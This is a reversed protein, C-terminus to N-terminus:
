IELNNRFFKLRITWVWTIIVVYVVDWYLLLRRFVTFKKSRIIPNGNGLALEATKLLYPLYNPFDQICLNQLNRLERQKLYQLIRRNPWKRVAYGLLKTASDRDNKSFFILIISILKSLAIREPHNIISNIQTRDDEALARYIRVGPLEPFYFQFNESENFEDQLFKKVADAVVVLMDWRSMENHDITPMYIKAVVNDIPQWLESSRRIISGPISARQILLCPVYPNAATKSLIETFEKNQFQFLRHLPASDGLILYNPQFDSGSLLRSVIWALGGGFSYGYFVTPKPIINKRIGEAIQKAALWWREKDRMTYKSNGIIFDACWIDFEEFWKSQILPYSPAWGGIGPMILVVGKSATLSPWLEKFKIKNFEVEMSNASFQGQGLLETLRNFTSNQRFEHIPLKKNFVREIDMALVMLSLSDGGLSLFDGSKKYAGIFLVSDWLRALQALEINDLEGYSRDEIVVDDSLANLRLYDVKGGQLLPLEQLIQIRKPVMYEPLKDLLLSRILTSHLLSNNITVFGYLVVAGDEFKDIVASNSIGPIDRLYNEVENLFVKNGRVKVMRELRGLHLLEGGPQIQVIDGTRYLMKDSCGEHALFRSSDIGNISYDGLAHYKSKIVLEGIADIGGVEVDQSCIAFENNPYINGIPATAHQVHLDNVYASWIFLASETSGYVNQILCDKRLLSKALILDSKLLPEGSFRIADLLNFALASNPFKAFKRFLSPTFRVHKARDVTISNMLSSLGNEKIRHLSLTGVSFLFVLAHHMFGYNGHSGAIVVRQQKSIKMLEISSQVKVQMTKSSYAILKPNGTSGSTPFVMAIEDIGKPKFSGLDWHLENVNSHINDLERRHLITSKNSGLTRIPPVVVQILSLSELGKKSVQDSLICRCGAVNCLEEVRSLPLDPELLLIIKGTLNIAFWSAVYDLSLRQQIGIIKIEASDTISEVFSAIQVIRLYLDWYTYEVGDEVIAICEPNQNAIDRLSQFISSNLLEISPSQFHSEYWKLNEKFIM